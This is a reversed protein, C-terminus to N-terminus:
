SLPGRHVIQVKHNNLFGPEMWIPLLFILQVTISERKRARNVRIDGTGRFYFAWTDRYVCLMQESASHCLLASCM